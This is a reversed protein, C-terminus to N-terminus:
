TALPKIKRAVLIGKDFDRFINVEFNEDNVITELFNKMAEKHSEVNDVILLGHKRLKDKIAQFYLIHECKTADFFVLDWKGKIRPIDEPAHGKIQVIYKALRSKQFFKEASAFRYKNSEITYLIGHNKKLAWAFWLGSYGISTGIELIKKAKIALAKKYLFKGLEPSVIWCLEKQNYEIIEAFVQSLKTM